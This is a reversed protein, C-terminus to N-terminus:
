CFGCDTREAKLRKGDEIVAREQEISSSFPITSVILQQGIRRTAM